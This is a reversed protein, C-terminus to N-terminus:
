LCLALRLWSLGGDESNADEMGLDEGDEALHVGAKAGAIDMMNVGDRLLGEWGYINWRAPFETIKRSEVTTDRLIQIRQHRKRESGDSYGTIILIREWQYSNIINTGTKKGKGKGVVKDLTRGQLIQSFVTTDNCGTKRCPEM